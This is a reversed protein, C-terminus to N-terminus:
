SRSTWQYLFVRVASKPIRGNKTTILPKRGGSSQEIRKDNLYDNILYVLDSSISFKEKHNKGDGVTAKRDNQDLFSLYPSPPDPHFDSIDLHCIYEPQRDCEVLIEFLVHERSAYHYRRLNNLIRNLRDIGFNVDGISKKM